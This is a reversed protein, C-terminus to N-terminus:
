RRQRRNVKYLYPVLGMANYTASGPIINGYGERFGYLEAPIVIQMAPIETAIIRQYEHYLSLSEEFSWTTRGLSFLVDIRKEWPTAPSDQYPHWLHLAGKSEWIWSADNPEISGEFGLIVSEWEFTDLLKTVILDYDTPEFSVTLGANRLSETILTGMEVRFPNDENTLITFSLPEGSPLNLFGDGDTDTLSLQEFLAAAAEPNFSVPPIATYFPSTNREPSEDIFGYGQYVEDIIQKRDILHLVARRFLPNSFLDHIERPLTKPNQNFSFFHNGRLTHGASYIRYNGEEQNDMLLGMDGSEIDMDRIDYFDLEGIQFKLLKTENDLDLLEVIEDLYPLEEFQRYGERASYHPNRVLRIHKGPIIESLMYPGTGTVDKASKEISGWERNFGDIGKEEILPELIHRPLIHITTLTHLFPRYPVPLDFRVTYDDIKHITVLRDRIRLVDAKKSDVEPNMYIEEISYLVDDATCPKGDSFIAGEDLNLLISHGENLIRYEKAIGSQIGGTVPNISLLGEFVLGLLAHLSRSRTAVINLTDLEQLDARTMSGGREGKRFHVADTELIGGMITRYEPEPIRKERCGEMLLLFLLSLFILNLKKM